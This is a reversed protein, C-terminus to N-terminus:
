IELKNFMELFRKDYTHNYSEEHAKNIIDLRETEHTLYYDKKDLAEEFTDFYVRNKFMEECMPFRKTLPFGHMAPINWFRNSTYGDINTFHSIDLCIKSSSYIEPMAEMIRARMKDLNSNIVFLGHKEFENIEKYRDMFHTSTIKGGIFVFDFAYKPNFMPKDIPEAGLPLFHVEKVGWVKKYMKEQGDNSIFMADLERCDAMIQMDELRLDGYWMVIKAQPNETKLRNRWDQHKIMDLLGYIIIDPKFDKVTEFETFQPRCTLFLHPHGLRKLGAKVGKFNPCHLELEPYTAGIYVIRM